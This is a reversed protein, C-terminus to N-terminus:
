DEKVAIRRVLLGRWFVVPLLILETLESSVGLKDADVNTEPTYHSSSSNTTVYKEESSQCALKLKEMKEKITKYYSTGQIYILIKQKEFTEDEFSDKVKEYLEDYFIDKDNESVDKIAKLSSTASSLIGKNLVVKGAAAKAQKITPETVQKNKESLEAFDTLAEVYQEMKKLYAKVRLDYGETEVFLTNARTHVDEMQIRIGQLLTRVEDLIEQKQQAFDTDSAADNETSVETNSEDMETSPLTRKRSAFRKM